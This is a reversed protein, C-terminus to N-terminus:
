LAGTNAKGTEPVGGILVVLGISEVRPVLSASSRKGPKLHPPPPAHVSSSKWPIWFVSFNGRSFAVIVILDHLSSQVGISRAFHCSFLAFSFSTRGGSM